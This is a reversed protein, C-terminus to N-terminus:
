AQKKAASMARDRKIYTIAIIAGAGGLSAFMIGIGGFITVMLKGTFDHGIALVVKPASRGDAYAASIRYRGPEAIEFELISVGARGALSYTANTSAARVTAPEGGVSSVVGISLGSVVGPSSYYRGEFVSEHEHFITYTGPKELAIEAKGPALMQQLGDGLGGIGTLLFYVFAAAGLVGVAGAIWYWKRGPMAATRDDTM